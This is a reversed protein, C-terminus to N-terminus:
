KSYKKIIEIFFFYIDSLDIRMQKANARSDVDDKIANYLKLAINDMIERDTYRLAKWINAYGNKDSIFEQFEKYKKTPLLVVRMQESLSHKKNIKTIIRDYKKYRKYVRNYRKRSM